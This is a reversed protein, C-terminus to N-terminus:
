VRPVDNVFNPVDKIFNPVNKTFNSVDLGLTVSVGNKRRHDMIENQFRYPLSQLVIGVEPHM